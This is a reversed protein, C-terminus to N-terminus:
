GRSIVDGRREGEGRRKGTLTLAQAAALASTAQQLKHAENKVSVELEEKKKRAAKEGEPGAAQAERLPPPPPAPSFFPSLLIRICPLGGDFERGSRM